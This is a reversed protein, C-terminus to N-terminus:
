GGSRPRVGADFVRFPKAVEGELSRVRGDLDGFDQTLFLDVNTRDEGVALRCELGGLVATKDHLDFPLFPVRVQFFLRGAPEGLLRLPNADQLGRDAVLLVAIKSQGFVVVKNSDDLRRCLLKDAPHDVLAALPDSM